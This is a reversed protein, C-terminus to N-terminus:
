DLGTVVIIALRERQGGGETDQLQVGTGIPIVNRFDNFEQVRHEEHQALVLVLDGEQVDVVVRYHHEPGVVVELVREALLADCDAEHVREDM